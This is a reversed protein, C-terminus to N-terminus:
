IESWGPNGLFTAILHHSAIRPPHLALIDAESYRTLPHNPTIGHGFVTFPIPDPLHRGTQCVTYHDALLIIRYPEGRAELTELLPSVVERDIDELAHVKGRVHGLHAEEDPANCHILCVDVADLHALAAQRKAALDSGLYGTTGPPMVAQGGLSLAMGYLFSLATVTFSRYPMPPFTRVRSHGWPWLMFKGRPSPRVSAQMLDVLPAYRQGRYSPFITEVRVGVNEHPESLSLNVENLPWARYVLVNRYSLDHYIEVGNPLALTQLYANAAADSIQNATFDLLAGSEDVEIINCRSVLDGPGVTIGLAAAEFISRGLPFYAPPDYGYIGLLGVLSGLPLGTHMTQVLGAQGGAVLRDMGPTAAYEAPSQNGLEAYRWDCMGDPVIIILKM